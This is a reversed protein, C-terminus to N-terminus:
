SRNTETGLLRAVTATVSRVLTTKRISKHDLSAGRLVCDVTRPEWPWWGVLRSGLEHEVDAGFRETGTIPADVVLVRATDAALGAIGPASQGKADIWAVTSVLSAPDASTCMVLTDAQEAIRWAPSSGGRLTGVDVVVLGDFRRLESIWDARPSAMASWAQFSDAPGCIVRTPGLRHAALDLQSRVSGSGSGFAVSELSTGGRTQLDPARAALVGGAPDGEVMLSEHGLTAAGVALLVASTTTGEGRWKSVAILTNTM